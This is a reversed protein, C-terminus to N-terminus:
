SKHLIKNLFSLRYPIAGGCVIATEITYRLCELRYYVDLPFRYLTRRHLQKNERLFELETYNNKLPSWLLTNKLTKKINQGLMKSKRLNKGMM